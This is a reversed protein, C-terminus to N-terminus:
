LVLEYLRLMETASEASDPRAIGRRELEHEALLAYDVLVRAVRLDDDGIHARFAAHIRAFTLYLMEPPMARLADEVEARQAPRLLLADSPLIQVVPNTAASQASLPLPAALCYFGLALAGSLKDLSPKMRM